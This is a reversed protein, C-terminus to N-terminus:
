AAGKGKRFIRQTQDIGNKTDNLIMNICVFVGINSVVSAHVYQCLLEQM